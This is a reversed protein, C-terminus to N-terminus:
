KNEKYMKNLLAYKLYSERANLWALQLGIRGDLFGKRLIFDRVFKFFPSFILKIFRGKKKNEYMKKASLAAYKKIKELHATKDKMSYHYVDGEIKKYAINQNTINPLLVLNEHVLETNWEAIEKHFLRARWEPYVGGNKIWYGCYNTLRNIKYISNKNTFDLSKIYAISEDTLVEDADLSLIWDYKAQAIGLNKQLGYGLWEHQIIRAGLKQAIQITKDTSFSDVIVVDDTLALAKPLSISINAEENFTIYVISLKPMLMTKYLKNLLYPRFYPM